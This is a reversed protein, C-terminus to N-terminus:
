SQCACHCGGDEGEDDFNDDDEDASPMTASTLLRTHPGTDIKVFTQKIKCGLGRAPLVSAACPTMDQSVLRKPKGQQKITNYQSTKPVCGLLVLRGILQCPRALGGHVAM